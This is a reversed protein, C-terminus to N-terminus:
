LYCVIKPLTEHIFFKIEIGMQIKHFMGALTITKTKEELEREEEEEERRM